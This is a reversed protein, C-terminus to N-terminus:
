PVLALVAGCGDPGKCPAWCPGDDAPGAEGDHDAEGDNDPESDPDGALADLRDLARDVLVRLAPAPLSLLVALAGEIRRPSPMM